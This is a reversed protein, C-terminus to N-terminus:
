EFESIQRVVSRCFYGRRCGADRQRDDDDCILVRQVVGYSQMCSARGILVRIGGVRPQARADVPMCPTLHVDMCLTDTPMCPTHAQLM